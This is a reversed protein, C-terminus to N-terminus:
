DHDTPLRASRGSGSVFPLSQLEVEIPDEDGPVTPRSGAFSRQILGLAIPSELMPSTTSRTLTGVQEGDAEIPCPAAPVTEPRLGVLRRNPSGRNEIRSVVEQGVFCGKEFDIGFRLGVDNPLEDAFDPDFLPTGAELTLTLWTEWGFPTANMGRTLLTDFVVGADYSATIVAFSEEGALDDGRAVTVGADGLAMQSFALRDDPLEGRRAVSALKETATPGHVGFVTYDETGEEITVDQIFVKERWDTALDGGTGPPVLLLLREEATFIYLDLRIRGNPELLLAYCGEGPETPVANSVVNDVYEHRDSGTVVLVDFSHVTVGVGKRVARHAREPRGYHEVVRHTGDERFSAGYDSQLDILDTVHCGETAQDAYM